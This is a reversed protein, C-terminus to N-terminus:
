PFVIVCRILKHKIKVINVIPVDYSEFSDLYLEPRAFLLSIFDDLLKIPWNFKLPYCKAYKDCIVGENDTEQYSFFSQRVIFLLTTILIAFIYEVSNISTYLDNEM